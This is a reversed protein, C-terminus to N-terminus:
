QAPEFQGSAANHGFVDEDKVRDTAEVHAGAGVFASLENWMPYEQDVVILDPQKAEPTQDQADILYKDEVGSVGFQEAYTKEDDSLKGERLEATVGQMTVQVTPIHNPQSLVFVARGNEPNFGPQTPLADHPIEIDGTVGRFDRLYERVMHYTVDLGTDRDEVVVWCTEDGGDQWTSNLQRPAKLFKRYVNEAIKKPSM